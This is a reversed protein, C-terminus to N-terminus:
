NAARTSRSRTATSFSSITEASPMATSSRGRTRLARARRGNRAAIAPKAWRQVALRQPQRHDGSRQEVLARSRNRCRLLPAAPLAGDLYRRLDDRRDQRGASRDLIEGGTGPEFYRDEDFVDYTPLLSRLSKRIPQGARAIGRCQSFTERPGRQSRRIRRAVRTPGIPEHLRELMELNQPVFRSKFVLDQPPYGTVALEPALVLEAGAAALREILQAIKEFNGSLDGVTPNIQAFGIKMSAFAYRRRGGSCHSKRRTIPFQRDRDKKYSGNLADDAGEVFVLGWQILCAAFFSAIMCIM